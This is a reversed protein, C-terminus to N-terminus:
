SGAGPAGDRAGDHGPVPTPVVADPVVAISETVLRRALTLQDADDLGPLDAVKLEGAALLAALAPRTSAPLELSRRGAVLTV